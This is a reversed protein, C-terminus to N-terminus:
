KGQLRKAKEEGRVHLEETLAPDTRVEIEVGPFLRHLHAINERGHGLCEERAGAPALISLTRPPSTQNKIFNRILSEMEHLRRRAKVLFGFSPHYPGAAIKGAEEPSLPHLGIRIVPIRRDNFIVLMEACVEVAEELSLPAYAGRRLMRELPTGRFVVAPYIRVGDPILSATIEASRLMERRSDGPLGPLLQIIFRFGASKLKEVARLTDAATHGRRSNRLVPDSFSQAGLEVTNVGCEKLLRLREEDILDPRTSVRIGQISGADMFGRAALLLERQIEPSIGTFSGGFFAAEIHRVTEPKKALQRQITEAVDRAGPIGKAHTSAHQDCFVCRQPCGLNPVFIPIHMQTKGMPGDKRMSMLPALINRAAIRCQM